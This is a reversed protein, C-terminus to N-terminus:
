SGLAGTTGGSASICAPHEASTRDQGSPLITRWSKSFLQSNSGHGSEISALSALRGMTGSEEIGLAVGSVDEGVSTAKIVACGEGDGIVDAGVNYGIDVVGGEVAVVGDPAADHSSSQRSTNGLM